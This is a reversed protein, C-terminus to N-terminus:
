FNGIIASYLNKLDAFKEKVTGHGSSKGTWSFEMAVLPTLLKNLIRYGMEKATKGGCQALIVM